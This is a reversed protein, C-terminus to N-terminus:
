RRLHPLSHEPDQMLLLSGHLMQNLQLSSVIPKLFLPRADLFHASLYYVIISIKFLMGAKNTAMGRKAEATTETKGEALIAQPTAKTVVKHQKYIAKSSVSITEALRM